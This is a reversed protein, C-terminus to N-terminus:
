KTTSRQFSILEEIQILGDKNTDVLDIMREVLAYEGKATHYGARKMAAQIEAKSIVGDGNLDLQAMARAELEEKDLVGDNNSDHRAFDAETGGAAKFEHADVVGNQNTDMAAVDIAAQAKVAAVIKAWVGRAFHNMLEVELPVFEDGLQRRGEFMRAFVAVDRITTPTTAVRYIKAPDIAEGGIHTVQLESEQVADCYQIYLRSTEGRTSRVGDIIDQGPM